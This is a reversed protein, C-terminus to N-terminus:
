NANKLGKGRYEEVLKIVVEERLILLEHRHLSKYYSQRTYGFLGCWFSVTTMTYSAIM